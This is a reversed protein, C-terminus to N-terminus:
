HQLADRVEEFEERTIEGRALRRQAIELPTDQSTAGREQDRSVQRIAWVVLWIVAGWFLVMCIGGLLMWWWAFGYFGWMM